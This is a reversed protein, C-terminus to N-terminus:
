LDDHDNLLSSIPDEPYENGNYRIVGKKDILIFTPVGVIRFEDAVAGEQDLLITYKIAYARALKEVGTRREGVNVALLALGKKELDMYGTNLDKLKSLCFPCWTTWFFLLVPQKGRYSSLQYTKGALDPRTFDVSAADGRAYAGTVASMCLCICVAIGAIEKNM